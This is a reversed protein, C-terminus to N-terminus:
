IYGPAQVYITFAQNQATTLGIGGNKPAPATSILATAVVGSTKGSGIITGGAGAAENLDAGTSWMLAKGAGSGAAVLIDHTHSAFNLPNDPTRVSVIVSNRLKGLVECIYGGNNWVSVDEASIIDKCPLPIVVGTVSDYTNAPVLISAGVMRMHNKQRYKNNPM